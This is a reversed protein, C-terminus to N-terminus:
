FNHATRWQVRHCESDFINRKQIGLAYCRTLFGIGAYGLVSAALTMAVDRKRRQRPNHLPLIHPARNAPLPTALPAVAARNLPDPHTIHLPLLQIPRSANVHDVPLCGGTCVCVVDQSDVGCM